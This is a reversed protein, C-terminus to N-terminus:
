LPPDSLFSLWFESVSFVAHNLYTIDFIVFNSEHKIPFWFSREESKMFNGFKISFTSKECWSVGKQDIISKFNLNCFDLNKASFHFISQVIKDVLPFKLWTPFWFCRVWCDRFDPKHVYTTVMTNYCIVSSVWNRLKEESMDNSYMLERDVLENRVLFNIKM